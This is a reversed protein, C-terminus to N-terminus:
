NMFSHECVYNLHNPKHFSDFCGHSMRLHLVFAAIGLYCRNRFKRHRVAINQLDVYFMQIMREHAFLCGSMCYDGFISVHCSLNCVHLGDALVIGLMFKIENVILKSLVIFNTEAKIICLTEFIHIHHKVFSLM